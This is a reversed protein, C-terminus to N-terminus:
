LNPNHIQIVSQFLLDQNCIVSQSSKLHTLNFISWPKGCKKASLEEHSWQGIVRRSLTKYSIYRQPLTIARDKNGSSYHDNGFSQSPSTCFSLSSKILHIIYPKSLLNLFDRTPGLEFGTDAEYVNFNIFVNFVSLSILRPFQLYSLHSVKQYLEAQLM